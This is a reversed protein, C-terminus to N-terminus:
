RTSSESSPVIDTRAAAEDFRQKMLAAYKGNLEQLINYGASTQENLPKKDIGGYGQRGEPLNPQKGVNPFPFLPHNLTTAVV